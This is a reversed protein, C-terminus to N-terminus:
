KPFTWVYTDKPLGATVARWRLQQAEDSTLNAGIVIAWNPNGSYPAYVEPKFGKAGFDKEIKKAAKDAAERSTYSGVIVFWVRKPLAGTLGRQFQEGLTEKPLSFTQVAKERSPQAYVPAIFQISASPKADGPAPAKPVQIQGGNLLGTILAPAAIGLQFLKVPSKEDKHLFAIVGGLSFLVIVRVVYALAVALTLDLFLIHLDVVLLNVIVPTLAGLGGLLLKQYTKM